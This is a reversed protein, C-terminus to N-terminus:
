LKIHAKKWTFGVVKLTSSQIPIKKFINILNTENEHKGDSQPVTEWPSKPRSEMILAFTLLLEDVYTHKSYKTNYIM